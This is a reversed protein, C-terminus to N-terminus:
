KRGRMLMGRTTKVSYYLAILFDVALVQNVLFLMNDFAYKQYADLAYHEFIVLGIASIVANLFATQKHRPNTFGAAASVVLIGIISVNTPFGIIYQFFPITVLMVIAAFLFCRRVIDGYYHSKYHDENEKKINSEFDSEDEM